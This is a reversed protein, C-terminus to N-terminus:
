KKRTKRKRIPEPPDLVRIPLCILQSPVTLYKRAEAPDAPVVKPKGIHLADHKM